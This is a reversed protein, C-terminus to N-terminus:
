DSARWWLARAPVLRIVPGPPPARRYQEYKATLAGVGALADRADLIEATCLLQVWALRQWEDEYRDVTVAGEPRRGLYRLRAPEPSRKPKRDIATWVADEALAFTIPLVRPRDRDDLLGLRAVRASELLERAWGPLRDLPPTSV